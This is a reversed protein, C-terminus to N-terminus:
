LNLGFTSNRASGLEKLFSVVADHSHHKEVKFIADVVAKDFTSRYSDPIKVLTRFLCGDIGEAMFEASISKPDRGTAVLALGIMLGIVDRRLKEMEAIDSKAALDNYITQLQMTALSAGKGNGVMIASEAFQSYAFACEFLNEYIMRRKAENEDKGIEELLADFLASVARFFNLPYFRAGDRNYDWSFSMLANFLIEYPTEYETDLILPKTEIGQKAMLREMLWGFSTFVEDIIKNEFGEDQKPFVREALGKLSRVLYAYIAVENLTRDAEFKGFSIVKTTQPQNKGDLSRAALKNTLEYAKQLFESANEKKCESIL